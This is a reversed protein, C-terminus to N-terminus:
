YNKGKKINGGKVKKENKKLKHPLTKKKKKTEWVFDLPIKLFFGL